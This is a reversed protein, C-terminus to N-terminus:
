HIDFENSITPQRSNHMRTGFTLWMSERPRTSNECFKIDVVLCIRHMNLREHFHTM